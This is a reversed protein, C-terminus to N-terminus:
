RGDPPATTGAATGASPGASLAAALAVDLGETRMRRDVYLLGTVGATFPGVLTAAFMAGIASVVFVSTSTDTDQGSLASIPNGGSFLFPVQLVQSVFGAVLATLLLVGLVRWWSQKVLIGSRSLAARVGQKELVVCLPAFAWRVYLYVALAVGLPVLVLGLLAGAVGSAAAATATLAVAALPAGFVALTVLLSVGALPALRPRLQRWAQGASLEQGLTGRSVAPAVLGTLVLGAFVGFLVTFASGTALGALEESARSLDGSLQEDELRLFPLLFTLTVMLQLAASVVAVVASFAFVARPYRRVVAVTGDLLESLGLPRLPVVGRRLGPRDPPPGSWGAPPGGWGGPPGTGGPPQGGWGPPAQPAPPGDHAGPNPVPTPVPTPVTWQPAAWGPEQQEM